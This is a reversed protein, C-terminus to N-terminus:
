LTAESDCETFTLMTVSLARVYGIMFRWHEQYALLAKVNTTLQSRAEGSKVNDWSFANEIHLVTSIFICYGTFPAVTMFDFDIMDQVIETIASAHHDCVRLLTEVFGFPPTEMTNMRDSTFSPYHFICNIMHRMLHLSVFPGAENETILEQLRGRSYNFQLPLSRMFNALQTQLQSFPSNYHWPAVVAQKLTEKGIYTTVAGWMGIADVILRTSAEPLPQVTYSGEQLLHPRHPGTACMTDQIFLAWFVRRRENQEALSVHDSPEKNLELSVALRVALGIYVWGRAGGGSTAEHITLLSLAQITTINPEDFVDSMVIRAREAFKACVKERTIGEFYPHDSFRATLAGISCILATSLRGNALRRHLMDRDLICYPQRDLYRFYLEILHVTVEHPMKEMQVPLRDSPSANGRNKTSSTSTNNSRSTRQAPHKYECPLGLRDCYSCM